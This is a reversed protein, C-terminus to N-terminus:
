FLIQLGIHGGNDLDANPGNSLDAWVKRYGAYVLAQPHVEYEIRATVASFRDADLFTVVDPAYHIQGTLGIRGFAQPHYRLQGSIALAALSDSDVSGAFLKFGVGVSLGPSGTGADGTVLLGLMALVSDNAVSDASSYLLGLDLESNGLGTTDGAFTVYRVQASDNSLDVDLSRAMGTMSFLSLLIVLGLRKM